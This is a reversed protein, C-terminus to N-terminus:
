VPQLASPPGTEITEARLTWACEALYARTRRETDALTGGIVVYSNGGREAIAATRRPHVAAGFHVYFRALPPLVLAFYTACCTHEVLWRCSLAVMVESLERGRLDERVVVRAVQLARAPDGVLEAPVDCLETAEFRGDRAPAWRCTAVPDGDIACLFVHADDDWRDEAAHRGPRTGLLYAAHSRFAAERLAFARARSPEDSALAFSVCLGRGRALASATPSPFLREAAPESSM